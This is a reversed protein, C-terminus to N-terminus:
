DITLRYATGFGSLEEAALHGVRELEQRRSEALRVFGSWNRARVFITTAAIAQPTDDDLNLLKRRAPVLADRLIDIGQPCISELEAYLPMTGLGAREALVQRETEDRPDLSFRAFRVLAAPGAHGDWDVGEAGIGAVPVAGSCLKCEICKFLRNSTDMEAESLVEPFAPQRKRQLYPRLGVIVREYPATDVALDRIIPFNALPEITMEPLAPEWCGLQPWGNVTVACEGCKKTGCFWRHALPVDLEDYVYTLADLVRMQPRYPMECHEYRPAADVSPDFRFVRLKVRDPATM